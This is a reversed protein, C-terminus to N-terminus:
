QQDSLPESLHPDSRPHFLRKDSELAVVALSANSYVFVGHFSRVTSVLSAFPCLGCHEPFEYAVSLYLFLVTTKM